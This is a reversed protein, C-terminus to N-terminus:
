NIDNGKDPRSGIGTGNFQFTICLYNITIGRALIELNQAYSGTQLVGRLAFENDLIAREEVVIVSNQYASIKRV